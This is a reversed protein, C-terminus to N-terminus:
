SEKIEAPRFTVCGNMFQAVATPIELWATPEDKDIFTPQTNLGSPWPANPPRSNGYAALGGCLTFWRVRIETSVDGNDVSWWVKGDDTKDYYVRWRQTTEM